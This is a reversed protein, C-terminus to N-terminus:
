VSGERMIFKELTHKGYFGIQGICDHTAEGKKWALYDKWNQKKHNSTVLNSGIVFQARVTAYESKCCEVRQMNMDTSSRYEIERYDGGLEVLLTKLTNENRFIVLSEDWGHLLRRGVYSKVCVWNATKINMSKIQPIELIKITPVMNASLYGDSQMNEVLMSRKGFVLCAEGDIWKGRVNKNRRVWYQLLHLTKFNDNNEHDIVRREISEPNWSEGGGDIWERVKGLGNDSMDDGYFDGLPAKVANGKKWFRSIQRKNFYAEFYGLVICANRRGM